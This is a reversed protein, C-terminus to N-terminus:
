KLYKYGNQIVIGQYTDNVKRGFIDYMPANRDIAPVVEISEAYYETDTYFPMAGSFTFNYTNNNDGTIYGNISYVEGEKNIVM